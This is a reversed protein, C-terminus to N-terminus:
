LYRQLTEIITSESFPKSIYENIGSEISLKKHEDLTFASVAIIPMEPRYARIKRTAEYGNLGPMKIDMFVIDIAANLAMDIAELGNSAHVVNFNNMELIASLYKFNIDEDEAILINKKLKSEKM